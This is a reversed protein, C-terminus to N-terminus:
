KPFGHPPPTSYRSRLGAVWLLRRLPFDRIESLLIHDCTGRSESGFIVASALVLLLQLRCVRRRTLSLPACWCVRLHWVTIFSDPRLGWIAAKHWSLSASQGDTTVYSESEFESDDTSNRLELHATLRSNPETLSASFIASHTWTNLTLWSAAPCSLSWQLQPIAMLKSCRTRVFDRVVPKGWSCNTRVCIYVNTYLM